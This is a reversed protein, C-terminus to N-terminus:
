FPLSSSTDVIAGSAVYSLLNNIRTYNRKLKKLFGKVANSLYDFNSNFVAKGNKKKMVKWILFKSFHCNDLIVRYM